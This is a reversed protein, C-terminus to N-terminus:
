FTSFDLSRLPSRTRTSKEFTIPVKRLQMSGETIEEREEVAVFATLKSMVGHEVSLRIAEQTVNKGPVM